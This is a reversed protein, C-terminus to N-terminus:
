PAVEALLAFASGCLVGLRHGTRGELRLQTPQFWAAQRVVRLGHDEMLRRIRTPDHLCPNYPGAPKLAARLRRAWSAAMGTLLVGGGPRTVRRLETILGDLRPLYQGVEIALTLDVAGDALPLNEGTALLGTIGRARAARLMAPAFDVGFVQNHGALGASMLGNGCGVDLIRRGTVPGVWDALLRARLAFSATSSYDATAPTDGARAGTEFHERIMRTYARDATIM